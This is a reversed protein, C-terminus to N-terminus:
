RENHVAKEKNKVFNNAWKKFKKSHYKAMHYCIEALIFRIMNM